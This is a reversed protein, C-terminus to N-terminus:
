RTKKKEKQKTKKSTAVKLTKKKTEAKKVTTTAKVTKKKIFAECGGTAVVDRGVCTGKNKNTVNPRYRICKSCCRDGTGESWYGPFM